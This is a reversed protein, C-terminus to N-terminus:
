TERRYRKLLNEYDEPTDIDLLVFEDEVPLMCSDTNQKEFFSKLGGEKDWQLIEPILACPILPPHGRKGQFAPYIINGLHFVGAQMIQTISSPKVLPIDVPLLFFAQYGSKLNRIGTQVSSLMGKEYDPNYIITVDPRKISARIKEYRHGAVLYVDVGLDRFTSVVHGAVTTEGLPLLPKFQKMRTSLGAALVVAAFRSTTM